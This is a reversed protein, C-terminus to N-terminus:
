SVKEFIYFNTKARCFGQFAEMPINLIGRLLLKDELWTQLWLYSRSFFYTEPLVIGLRGGPVLIRWCLELFALGVERDVLRNKDFLFSEEDKSKTPTRCISFGSERADGASLTLDEGFPPNTVVMTYSSDALVEPLAPFRRRWLHRRLSDGPFIHASGDGITMMMAKTLKVNVEDKDVGFLRTQAWSKADAEGLNPNLERFRKFSELLFGGTGCAPDIIRDDYDVGLARIASRIVPAPTFYQGEGAKLTATRFVQFAESMVPLSTDLLRVAALEFCARVLTSSDLDLSQDRNSQFLSPVTLKLNAYAERIKEETEDDSRWVQFTVPNTPRAKARRDSELKVLLLNCLQNLQTDRRTSATDAAVVHDLLRSFTTRLERASTPQLDAWVLLKSGPLVLSEDPSPLRSLRKRALTGDQRRYVAAIVQGNTWIGLLARPELNLYIELQSYGKTITPAKTEIIILLHEWDGRHEPKDFVAIDVPFGIFKRSQERKAAESPSRPVLWEPSCQLQAEDWGTQILAQLLPAGTLIAEPGTRRM